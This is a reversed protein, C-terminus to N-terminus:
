LFLATVHFGLPRSQGVLMSGNRRLSFLNGVLDVWRWRIGQDGAPVSGSHGARRQPAQDIKM